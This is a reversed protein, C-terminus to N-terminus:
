PRSQARVRKKAVSGALSSEVVAELFRGLQPENAEVHAAGKTWVITGLGAQRVERDLLAIMEQPTGSPLGARVIRGLRGAVADVYDQKASLVLARPDITSLLSALGFPSVRSAYALVSARLRPVDVDSSGLRQGALGLIKSRADKPDPREWVLGDRVLPGVHLESLTSKAKGTIRVLDALRRPKEALAHLLKIRTPHDISHIRDGAEWIEFRPPRRASVMLVADSAQRGSVFRGGFDNPNSRVIIPPTTYPM